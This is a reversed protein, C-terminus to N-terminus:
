IIMNQFPLIVLHLCNNQFSQVNNDGHSMIDNGQLIVGEKLRNLFVNFMYLFRFHFYCLTTTPFSLSSM